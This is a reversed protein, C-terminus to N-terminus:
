GRQLQYIVPLEFQKTKFLTQQIEIKGLKGLANVASNDLLAYGSSQKIKVQQIQGQDNILFVLLVRGQWGKKRALSPYVFHQALKQKLQNLISAYALQSQEQQSAVSQESTAETDSTKQKALPRVKKVVAKNDSLKIPSLKIAIQQGDQDPVTIQYSQNGIFWVFHLALSLVIFVALRNNVLYAKM